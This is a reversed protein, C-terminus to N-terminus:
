GSRKEPSGNSGLGAGAVDFFRRAEEIDLQIQTELEARGEFKKERRIMKGFIVELSKGYLDGEFDLLHVELLRRTGGVTPRVGLNAVAERREREGEVRAWVTYVGDPPLQEDGTAINATPAGLKRGVQEGAEVAGMMSYLRGLMRSVSDLDGERLAKRLRTSSIMEGGCMVPAVPDVDIRYKGSQSQLFAMTGKRGRGFQWGEGAVVQRLCPISFLRTAFEAATQHAMLNDFNLVLLVEVGMASLLREQHGLSSFIRRPANEPDLIQAPHPDFTLVGAVGGSIVAGRVATEIVAQHGLHLGDFVGMALHLSDGIGGLEEITKCRIM